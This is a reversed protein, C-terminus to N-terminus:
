YNWNLKQFNFILDDINDGVYRFKGPSYRRSWNLGNLPAVTYLAM